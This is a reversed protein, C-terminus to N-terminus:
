RDRAVSPGFARGAESSALLLHWVLGLGAGAKTATRHEAGISAVRRLNTQEPGFTASANRTRKEGTNTSNMETRTQFLVGSHALTGSHGGLRIALQAILISQGALGLQYLTRPM